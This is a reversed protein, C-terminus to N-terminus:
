KKAASHKSQRDWFNMYQQWDYEVIDHKGKRLHYGITGHNIPQNVAPPTEPPADGGLGDTGLLRYTADAFRASLYEGKPDAWEDESASAIYVPRPAILAVVQHQDVPLAAENGNYRKFNECFWYPVLTNIIEVTEGFARRSLAAGGCGSNNSITLAFRPDRAGAWLAAKGLRSHGIVAVRDGDIDPDQRLYDLGRSLGWSWAAICAWSDAAPRKEGPSALAAIVSGSRGGRHDPYIDGCYATAVAYGRDIISRIPWRSVYIGRSAETGRNKSVGPTGNAVWNPSIAVEKDDTVTQNGRFNLGWFVPAPRGTKPVYLLMTMKLPQPQDALVIEIQKRIARGQLADDDESIVRFRLDQPAQPSKGYVHREFLRLLQPRRREFWQQPTAVPKGDEFQLPDPLEFKPVKAEDYNAEPVAGLSSTCPLAFAILGVACFSLLKRSIM